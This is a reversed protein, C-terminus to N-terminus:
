NYRKLKLKEIVQDLLLEQHIKDKAFNHHNTEVELVQWKDKIEKLWKRNVKKLALFYESDVVEFERASKKARDILVQDDAMLYILLDPAPVENWALSQYYDQYELFDEQSMRGLNRNAVAYNYDGEPPLDQIFIGEKSGEKVQEFKRKIFWKQSDLLAKSPNSYSKKLYPNHQWDEYSATVTFGLEKLGEALVEVVTTKGVRMSDAAVEIRFVTFQDEQKKRFTNINLM